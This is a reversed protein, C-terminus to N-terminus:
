PIPLKKEWPEDDNNAVDPGMRRSAYAQAKGWFFGCVAAVVVLSCHCYMCGAGDLQLGVIWSHYVHFGGDKGLRPVVSKVDDFGVYTFAMHEPVGIVVVAVATVL